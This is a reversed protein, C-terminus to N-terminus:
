EMWSDVLERAEESIVLVYGPDGDPGQTGIYRHFATSQDAAYILDGGGNEYTITITYATSAQMSMLHSPYPEVRKEGSFLLKLFQEMSEEDLFLRVGDTQWEPKQIYISKIDEPKGSLIGYEEEHGMLIEKFCANLKENEIHWVGMNSGYKEYLEGGEFRLSVRDQGYSLYVISDGQLISLELEPIIQERELSLQSQQLSNLAKALEDRFDGSEGEYNYFTLSFDNGRLSQAWEHPATKFASDPISVILEKEDSGISVSINGEATVAYDAMEAGTGPADQKDSGTCSLSGEAFKGDKWVAFRVHGTEAMYITGNNEMRPVWLLSEEAATKSM